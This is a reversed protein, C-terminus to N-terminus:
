NSKFWWSTSNNNKMYNEYEGSELMQEFNLHWPIHMCTFDGAVRISSPGIRRNILCFTTDIDAYFIEMSPNPPYNLRYAWFRREWDKITCGKYIVDTRIDDADILLAFGTKHMKFYNSIAVLQDIFDDPLNPNFQLDPDTLIYLDGTLKQIFEYEFVKHGYNVKQKLLTYKFENEYYDLLPQFDSNNDIVNIDTTYRELQRVMNRIYTLQNYGIVFVPMNKKVLIRGDRHPEFLISAFPNSQLYESLNESPCNTKFYSFLYEYESLSHNQWWDLHFSLYVACNNNYAFHLVDELIEEEGGEIDCKIFSIHRANIRDDAYIYDYILQKFTISPIRNEIESNSEDNVHLISENLVEDRSANNMNKKFQSIPKECILVNPCESAELNRRMCELSKVDPEVAVVTNFNKSLWIATTGIWAGLDIAIAEKNKVQDFVEFTEEEWEWFLNQTFFDTQEDFKVFKYEVDQKIGVILNEDSLLTSETLFVFALCIVIKFYEATKM